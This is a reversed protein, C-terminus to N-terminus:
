LEIDLVFGAAVHLCLEHCVEQCFKNPVVFGGRIPPTEINVARRVHLSSPYSDDEFTKFCLCVIVHVTELINSKHEKSLMHVQLDLLEM